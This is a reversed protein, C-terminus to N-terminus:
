AEDAVPIDSTGVTDIMIKGKGINEIDHNQIKLITSAEEYEAHNYIENFKLFTEKRCRTGLINYSKQSM